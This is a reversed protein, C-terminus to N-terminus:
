ASGLADLGRLVIVSGDPPTRRGAVLIRGAAVQEDIWELHAARNADVEDLEALYTGLVVTLQQLSMPGLVASGAFWARLRRHRRRFTAAVLARQLRARWRACAARLTLRDRVLTGGEAPELTREHEWVRMSLMSSREHFGRGPEISVLTLDDYDVPLVGFLLLRSRFWREGLPM